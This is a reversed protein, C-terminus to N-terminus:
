QPNYGLGLDLYRLATRKRLSRNQIAIKQLITEKFNTFADEFAVIADESEKKEEIHSKRLSVRLIIRYKYTNIPEIVLEFHPMDKPHFKSLLKSIKGEFREKIIQLQERSIRSTRVVLSYPLM